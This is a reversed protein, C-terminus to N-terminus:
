TRADARLSSELAKSASIDVLTLVVGDIVNDLRRYPIIRVSFWRNDTTHIEKECTALTRLTPGSNRAEFWGDSTGPTYDVPLAEGHVVACVSLYDGLAKISHLSDPGDPGTRSAPTIEWEVDDVRQWGAKWEASLIHRTNADILSGQAMQTLVDVHGYLFFPDHRLRDSVAATAPDPTFGEYHVVRAMGSMM